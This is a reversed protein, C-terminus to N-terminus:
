AKPATKTLAQVYRAMTSNHIEEVEPSDEASEQIVRIGSKVNTRSPFYNERIIALKNDFDGDATFEVSEALSKMKSSQVETLGECALRIAKEKKVANVQEELAAFEEERIASAEELQVLRMALEEALDVKEEPIEIYHENFLNKLGFIFDESLEARLGTEIAVSNEEMWQEVVYNLYEDVQETLESKIEEIASDLVEENESLVEEVINEVRSQVATEFILTAKVRFDESLSEGNFLANVDERMSGRYKEILNKKTEEMYNAEEEMDKYNIPIHRGTLYWNGSEPHRKAEFDAREDFNRHFGMHVKGTPDISHIDEPGLYPKGTLDKTTTHEISDLPAGHEGGITAKPDPLNAFRGDRYGEKDTTFFSKAEDIQELEEKTLKARTAPSLSSMFDAREKDKSARYLKNSKGRLADSTKRLDLDGAARSQAERKNAASWYTSAKLEDLQELEERMNEDEDENEDEEEFDEDDEIGPRSAMEMNAAAAAAIADVTGNDHEGSLDEMDTSLTQAAEKGANTMSAQLIEAASESLTKSM